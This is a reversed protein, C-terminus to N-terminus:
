ILVGPGLMSRVFGERRATGRGGGRNGEQVRPAEPRRSGSSSFVEAPAWVGACRDGARGPEGGFDGRCLETGRVKKRGQPGQRYQGTDSKPGVTSSKLHDYECRPEAALSCAIHRNFVCVPRPHEQAWVCLVSSQPLSLPWGRFGPKTNRQSRSM